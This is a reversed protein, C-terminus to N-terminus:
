QLNQALPSTGTADLQARANRPLFLVVAPAIAFALPTVLMGWYGAPNGSVTIPSFFVFALTPMTVAWLSTWKVWGKLALSGAIALAYALWPLWPLGGLLWTGVASRRPSTVRPPSSDKPLSFGGGTLAPGLTSFTLVYAAVLVVFAAAWPLWVRKQRDEASVLSAILAGLLFYTAL